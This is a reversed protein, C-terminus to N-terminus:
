GHRPARFLEILIIGVMLFYSLYTLASFFIVAISFGPSVFRVLWLGGFTLLVTLFPEIILTNKLWGPLRQTFYFLFGTILFIFAFGFLHNHTTILMEALPKAYNEPIDFDDKEVRQDGSYHRTIGQPSIQTNHYVYILGVGVALTQLLLFGLVLAKLAHPLQYLNYSSLTSKSNM